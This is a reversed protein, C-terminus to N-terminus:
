CALTWQSGWEVAAGASHQRWGVAWVSARAASGCQPRGFASPKGHSAFREVVEGGKAVEGGATAPGTLNAVLWQPGGHSDMGQSGYHTTKGPIRFCAGFREACAHAICRKSFFHSAHLMTREVSSHKAMCRIAVWPRPLWFIAPTGSDVVFSSAPEHRTKRSHKPECREVQAHNTHRTRRDM